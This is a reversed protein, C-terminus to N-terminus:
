VGTWVNIVESQTRLGPAGTRCEIFLYISMYTNVYSGRDIAM